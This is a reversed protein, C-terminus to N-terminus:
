GVRLQGQFDHTVIPLDGGAAYIAPRDSALRMWGGAYTLLADVALISEVPLDRWTLTANAATSYFINNEYTFNEQMVDAIPTVRELNVVKQNSLVLNNAIIIDRAPLNYAVNTAGVEFAYRCNVITNFPV